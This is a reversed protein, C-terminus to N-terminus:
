RYVCWDFGDNGLPDVYTILSCCITTDNFFDIMLPHIVNTRTAAAPDFRFCKLQLFLMRGDIQIFITHM